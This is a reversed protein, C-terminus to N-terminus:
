ETRRFEGARGITSYKSDPEEVKGRGHFILENFRWDVRCAIQHLFREWQRHLNFDARRTMKTTCHARAGLLGAAGCLVHLRMYPPVKKLGRSMRLCHVNESGALWPGMM